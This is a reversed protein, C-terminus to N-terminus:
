HLDARALKVVDDVTVAEDLCAQVETLGMETVFGNVFGAVIHEIDHLTPFTTMFFICMSLLTKISM